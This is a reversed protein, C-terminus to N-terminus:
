VYGVSPTWAGVKTIAVPLLNYAGKPQNLGVNLALSPGLPPALYYICIASNHPPFIDWTEGAAVVTVHPILSNGRAIWAASLSHPTHKTYKVLVGAGKYGIMMELSAPPETAELARVTRAQMSTPSTTSSPWSRGARIM